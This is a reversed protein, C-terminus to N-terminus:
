RFSHFKPADYMTSLLVIVILKRSLVLKVLPVFVNLLESIAYSVDHIAPKWLIPMKRRM